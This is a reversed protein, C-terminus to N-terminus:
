GFQEFATTNNCLQKIVIDFDINFDDICSVSIYVAYRGQNLQQIPLRTGTTLRQSNIYYKVNTRNLTANFNSLILDLTM